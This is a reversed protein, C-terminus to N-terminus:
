YMNEIKSKRYNIFYESIRKIYEVTLKKDDIGNIHCNIDSPMEPISNLIGEVTLQFEAIREGHRQPHENEWINVYIILKRDDTIEYHCCIHTNPIVRFARVLDINYIKTSFMEDTLKSARNILIDAVDNGYLKRGEPTIDNIKVEM